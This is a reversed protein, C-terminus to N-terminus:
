SNRKQKPKSKLHIKNSKFILFLYKSLEEDDNETFNENLYESKFSGISQIHTKAYDVQEDVSYCREIEEEEYEEM